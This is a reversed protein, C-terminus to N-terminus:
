LNPGQMLTAPPLEILKEKLNTTIGEVENLWVHLEHGTSDGFVLNTHKAKPLALFDKRSPQQSLRRKLDKGIHWALMDAAQTAAYSEKTVFEHGEYYYAQRLREDRRILLLLQDARGKSQHGDEFFYRVGGPWNHAKVWSRVFAMIVWCSWEYDGMGSFDQQMSTQKLMGEPFSVGYGDCAYKGILGIAHRAVQDREPKSLHKFAGNGHACSSMRFYPLKYRDLM